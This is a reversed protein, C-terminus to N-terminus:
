TSSIEINRSSNLYCYFQYYFYLIFCVALLIIPVTSVAIVRPMHELWEFRDRSIFNLLVIL